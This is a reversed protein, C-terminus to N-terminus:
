EQEGLDNPELSFFLYSVDPAEVAAQECVWDRIERFLEQRTAGDRATITGETSVFSVAGPMAKQHQVTMIWHYENRAM